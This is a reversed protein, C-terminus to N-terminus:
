QDGKTYLGNSATRYKRPPLGEQHRFAESLKGPSNFGCQEAIAYLPLDTTELLRKAEQIRYFRLRRRFSVGLHARLLRSLYRRSIRFHACLQDVGMARRSCHERIFLDLRHALHNPTGWRRELLTAVLYSLWSIEVPKKLFEQAGAKIALVAEEIEANASVMVVAVQIGHARLTRLLALGKGEIGGDLVLVDYYRANLKALLQSGDQIVEVDWGQNRFDDALAYTFGMDNDAILMRAM